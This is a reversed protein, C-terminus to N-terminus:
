IKEYNSLTKKKKGFVASECSSSMGNQIYFNSSSDKVQQTCNQKKDLLESFGVKIPIQLGELQDSTFLKYMSQFTLLLMDMEDDTEIMKGGLLNCAKETDKRFFLKM